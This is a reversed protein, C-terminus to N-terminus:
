FGRLEQLHKRAIDGIEGFPVTELVQSFCQIAKKNEGRQRYLLGLNIRAPIFYESKQLIKIYLDQAQRIRGENHHALAEEFLLMVQNTVEITFFAGIGVHLLLFFIPAKIIGFGFLGLLVSSRR